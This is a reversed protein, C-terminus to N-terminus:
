RQTGKSVAPPHTGISGTPTVSKGPPAHEGSYDEILASSDREIADAEAGSFGTADPQSVPKCLYIDRRHREIDIKEFISMEAGAMLNNRVQFSSTRLSALFASSSFSYSVLKLM